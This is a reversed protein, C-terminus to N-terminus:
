AYNKLLTNNDALLFSVSKLFVNYEQENSSALRDTRQRIITNDASMEYVSGAIGKFTLTLTTNSGVSYVYEDICLVDVTPIKWKIVLDDQILILGDIDDNKSSFQVDMPPTYFNQITMPKESARDDDVITIAFNKTHLVSLFALNSQPELVYTKKMFEGGIIELMVYRDDMIEVLLCLYKLMQMIDTADPGYINYKLCVVNGADPWLYVQNNELFMLKSKVGNMKYGWLYPRSEDFCHWMQVKNPICSFLTELAMVTAPVRHPYEDAVDILKQEYQLIHKYITSSPYEIEFEIYFKEGDNTEDKNYSVRVNQRVFSLLRHTARVVTSEDFKMTTLAENATTRVIPYQNFTKQSLGFIQKSTLTTKTQLNREHLRVACDSINTKILFIIDHKHNKNLQGEWVAREIPISITSECEITDCKSTSM